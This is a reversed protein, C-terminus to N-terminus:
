RNRQRHHLELLAPLVVLTGILSWFVAIALLIGMSQTGKHASLTLSGFSTVTSAAAILTALPTSTQWLRADFGEERARLLLHSCGALGIGLILPLTIINAFNLPIGFVAATAAAMLGALVLPLIALATDVVDRLVVLLLVAIALIAYITAKLMADTVARGAGVLAVAPGTAASDIAAMRDVFDDIPVVGKGRDEASEAEVRYLGGPAMWLRQLPAPLSDITVPQALLARELQDLFLPFFRFLDGDAARLDDDSMAVLKELTGVFPSLVAAGDGLQGGAVMTKIKGITAELRQRTEAPPPPAVTPAQLIPELFLAMDGIISLKEAQDDPVYSEITTVKAVSPDAVVKAAIERAKALDDVIFAIPYAAVDGHGILDLLTTVSETGPDKLNFTDPDFTLRPLVAIGAIAAAVSVVVVLVAHRRLGSEATVAAELIRRPRRQLPRLSLLVPMLTLTVVLAIAMGASAIIGLEALGVYETPVFALFGTATAAALFLLASGAGEASSRLA